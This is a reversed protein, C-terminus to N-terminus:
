RSSAGVLDKVGDCLVKDIAGIDSRSDLMLANVSKM